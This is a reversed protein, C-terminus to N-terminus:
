RKGLEMIGGVIMMLTAIVFFYFGIGLFSMLTGFQTITRPDIFFGLIIVVLAIAGGAFQATGRANERVLFASGIGALAALLCIAGYLGSIAFLNAGFGFVSVWPLFLSIFLLVGGAPGILERSPTLIEQTDTRIETFDSPSTGRIASLAEGIGPISLGPLSASGGSRSGPKVDVYGGVDASSQASLLRNLDKITAQSRQIKGRIRQEAKQLDDAKIEGVKFRTDLTQLETNQREVNTEETQIEQTVKMKLQSVTAVAQEQTRQYGSKMSTYQDDSVAGKGKLADLNSLLKEYKEKESYARQLDREERAM